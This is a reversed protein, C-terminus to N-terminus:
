QACSRSPMLHQSIVQHLKKKGKQSTIIYDILWQFQEQGDESLQFARKIKRLYDTFDNYNKRTITQLKAEIDQIFLKQASAVLRNLPERHCSFNQYVSKHYAPNSCREAIETLLLPNHICNEIVPVIQTLEDMGLNSALTSIWLVDCIAPHQCDMAGIDLKKLAQIGIKFARQLHKKSELYRAVSFLQATNFRESSESTIQCVLEFNECHDECLTLAFLVCPVPDKICAEIVMNRIKSLLEERLLPSNLKLHFFVPQSTLMPAIENSIEKPSFLDTWNRILFDVALRGTDVACSVLWRICAKRESADSILRISRVGLEFAASLIDINLEPQQAVAISQCLKALKLLQSPQKIDELIATLTLKLYESHRDCQKLMSAALEGQQYEIHSKIYCFSGNYSVVDSIYDSEDDDSDSKNLNLPLMMISLKFALNADFQFVQENLFRIFCHNPLIDRTIPTDLLTVVHQYLKKSYKSLINQLVPSKYDLMELQSILQEYRHTLRNQAYEGKPLNFSRSLAILALELAEAKLENEILTNYATLIPETSKSFIDCSSTHSTKLTNLLLLSHEMAKTKLNCLNLAEIRAAQTFVNDNKSDIVAQLLNPSTVDDINERPCSPKQAWEKIYKALRNKTNGTLNPNLMVCYWLSQLEDYIRRIRQCDQVDTRQVSENMISDTVAILLNIYNRDSASIMERVKNMLAIINKGPSGEALGVQIQKRINEHDIHWTNEDEISGGATPDPIGNLLSIESDPKRLEDLLTQVAPLINNSHKSVLTLLLKQLENKKLDVVSDSIPPRIPVENSFRIRYLAVAVVHSCWLLSKNSCTCDTSTICNRDFNMSCKFVQTKQKNCIGIKESVLGSLHFGIQLVDSVAGQELIKSGVHYPQKLADAANVHIKNSSYLEVCSENQPFSYFMVRNQVPDPIVGLKEEIEQYPFSSAVCHAAIDLLSSINKKCRKTDTSKDVENRQRKRAM